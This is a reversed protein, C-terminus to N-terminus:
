PKRAFTASKEGQTNLTLCQRGDRCDTIVQAHGLEARLRAVKSFTCTRLTAPCDTTMCTCARVLGSSHTKKRIMHYFKGGEMPPVNSVAM